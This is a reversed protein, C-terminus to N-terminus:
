QADEAFEITSAIERVEASFGFPKPPNEIYHILAPVIDRSLSLALTTELYTGQPAECFAKYVDRADEVVNM